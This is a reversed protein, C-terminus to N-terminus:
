LKYLQFLFGSRVKNGITVIWLKSKRYIHMYVIYMLEYTGEELISTPFFIVFFYKQFLCLWRGKGGRIEFWLELLGIEFWIGGFCVRNCLNPYLAFQPASKPFCFHVLPPTSSHYLQLLPKPWDWLFSQSKSVRRFQGLNFCPFWAKRNEAWSFIPSLTGEQSLSNSQALCSGEQLVLELFLAAIFWCWNWLPSSPM